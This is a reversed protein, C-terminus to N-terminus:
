GGHEAMRTRRLQWAICALDADEAVAARRHLNFLKLLLYAALEPECRALQALGPVAAHGCNIVLSKTTRGRGLECAETLEDLVFPHEQAVAVWAPADDPGELRGLAVRVEGSDCHRAVLDTLAAHLSSWGHLEGVAAPQPLCYRHHAEPPLSDCVSRLVEEEASGRGVTIVLWGVDGLAAGLRSGAAARLLRGRRSAREVEGLEVPRGDCSRFLRVRAFPGREPDPREGGSVRVQSLRLELNGYWMTRFELRQRGSSEFDLSV